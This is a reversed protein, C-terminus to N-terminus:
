NLAVFLLKQTFIKVFVYDTWVDLQWRCLKNFFYHNNSLIWNLFNVFHFFKERISDHYFLVCHRSSTSNNHLLVAFLIKTKLKKEKKDPKRSRNDSTRENREERKNPLLDNSEIYITSSALWLWSVVTIPTFLKWTKATQKRKKRIIMKDVQLNFIIKFM